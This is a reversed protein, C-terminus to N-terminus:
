KSKSTAKGFHYQLSIAVLATMMTAILFMSGVTFRISFKRAQRLSSKM